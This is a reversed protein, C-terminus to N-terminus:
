SVPDEMPTNLKGGKGDLLEEQFFDIMHTPAKPDGIVLVEGQSLHAVSDDLAKDALIKRLRKVTIISAM